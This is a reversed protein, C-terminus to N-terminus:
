LDAPILKAVLVTVDARVGIQSKDDDLCETVALYHVVDRFTLPRENPWTAFSEVARRLITQAGNADAGTRKAIVHAYREHATASTHEEAAQRYLQLCERCTRKLHRKERLAVWLNFRRPSRM